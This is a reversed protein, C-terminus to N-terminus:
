AAKITRNYNDCTVYFSYGPVFQILLLLIPNETPAVKVGKAKALEVQQAMFQYIWVYFFIGCTVCGLLIAPVPAMIKKIGLREAENNNATGIYGWMYFSYIGCTVINLLFTTVWNFEKYNNM